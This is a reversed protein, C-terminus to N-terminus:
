CINVFSQQTGPVIHAQLLWPFVQVAEESAVFLNMILITFLDPAVSSSIPAEEKTM